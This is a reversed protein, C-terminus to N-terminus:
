IHLGDCHNFITLRSSRPTRIKRAARRRRLSRSCPATALMRRRWDDQWCWLTVCLHAPYDSLSTCVPLLMALCFCPARHMRGIPNLPEVDDDYLTCSTTSGAMLWQQAGRSSREPWGTVPYAHTLSLVHHPDTRSRVHATHISLLVLAALALRVMSRLARPPARRSAELLLSPAGLAVSSAAEEFTFDCTRCIHM